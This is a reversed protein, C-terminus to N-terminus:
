RTAKLLANWPLMACKLRMPFKRVAELCRVQDWFEGEPWSLEEDNLIADLQKVAQELEGPQLVKLAESMVSASAISVACGLADYYFNSFLPREIHLRIKDGCAPNLEEHSLEADTVPKRNRPSRYHELIIEQYLDASSM